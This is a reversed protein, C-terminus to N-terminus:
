PNRRDDWWRKLVARLGAADGPAFLRADDEVMEPIGGVRSAFVPRGAARALGIVTPSNEHCLSPVVLADCRAFAAALDAGALFGHATFREDDRVSRAVAEGRTGDGVIELHWPVERWDRLADILFLVGKHQEIQGLFLLRLTQPDRPPTEVAPLEPIENPEVKTESRPFFGRETHRALAWKSPSVVIQPSAILWRTVAQYARHLGDDLTKERGAMVLGSPEVLQADHLRHVCPVGAARVARWVLYGLGKLNHTLVLDPRERRLIRRVTFYAHLNFLDLLHYVWRLPRPTSFLRPYFFLNLAFFRVVRLGNEITDVPRLDSLRRLPKTTIVFVDDGREQRARAEREAVVEAGGVGHPALLGSIVAVKM